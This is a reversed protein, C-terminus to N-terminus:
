RRVPWAAWAISTLNGTAIIVFLTWSLRTSSLDMAERRRRFLSARMSGHTIMAAIGDTEPATAQELKV